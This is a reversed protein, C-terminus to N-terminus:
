YTKSTKRVINYIFITRKEFLVEFIIRYNGVRLRWNSEQGQLKAVDGLFPNPKIKAIAASVRNRDVTPLRALQKDASQTIIVTWM